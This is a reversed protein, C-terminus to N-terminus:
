ADLVCLIEMSKRIRVKAARRGYLETERRFVFSYEDSQGYAFVLDNFDTMVRRACENMLDLAPKDNPKAFGHRESFKHFAKGDIRVVIWCNPVLRDDLEYSRVYEFRSHSM